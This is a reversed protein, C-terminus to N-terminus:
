NSCCDFIGIECLHSQSSHLGEGSAFSLGPLFLGKCAGAVSPQIAMDGTAVSPQIAMDGTAVSPQIAM